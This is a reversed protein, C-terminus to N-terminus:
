RAVSFAIRRTGEILAWWLLGEGLERVFSGRPYRVLVSDAARLGFGPRVSYDRGILEGDNSVSSVFLGDRRLPFLAPNHVVSRVLERRPATVTDIEVLFPACFAEADALGGTPAVATQAAEVFRYVIRDRWRVEGPVERVEIRAAPVIVVPYTVPESPWAVIFFLLAGAVAAGVYGGLRMM